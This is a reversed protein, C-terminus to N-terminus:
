DLEQSDKETTNMKSASINSHYQSVKEEYEMERPNPFYHFQMSSKM